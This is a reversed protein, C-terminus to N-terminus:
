HTVIWFSTAATASFTGNKRPYMPLLLTHSCSDTPRLILIVSSRRRPRPRAQHAPTSCAEAAPVSHGKVSAARTAQAARASHSITRTILTLVLCLETTASFHTTRTIAPVSWTRRSILPRGRSLHTPNSEPMRRLRTATGPM